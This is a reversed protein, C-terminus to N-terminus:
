PMGVARSRRCTCCREEAERCSAKASSCKGQAWVDGALDDAIRCIAAANACIAGGLDCVEGCTGGTAAPEDCAKAAEAPSVESMAMVSDADPEVALSADLRWQRIQTSLATIEQRKGQDDLPGTTTAPVTTTPPSKMSCAAAAGLVLAAIPRSRM